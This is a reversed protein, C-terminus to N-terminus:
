TATCKYRSKTSCHVKEKFTSTSAGQLLQVASRVVATKLGTKLYYLLIMADLLSSLRGSSDKRSRPRSITFM